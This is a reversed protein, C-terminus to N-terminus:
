VSYITPLTLHTYSVAFYRTGDPATGDHKGHEASDWAIGYFTGPYPPLPGEYLLTGTHRHRALRTGVLM